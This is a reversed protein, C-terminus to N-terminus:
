PKRVHGNKSKPLKKKFRSIVKAVDSYGLITHPKDRYEQNIIDKIEWNTKGTNYLEFIRKDRMFNNSIKQRGEKYGELKKQQEEIIPWYRQFDKITTEPFIEVCLKKFNKDEQWFLKLNNVGEGWLSHSHTSFFEKEGFLCYLELPTGYHAPLNYKKLVKHEKEKLDSATIEGDWFLWSKETLEAVDRDEQFEPSLIIMEFKQRAIMMRKRTEDNVKQINM